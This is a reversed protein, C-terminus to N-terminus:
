ASAKTWQTPTIEPELFRSSELDNYAPFQRLKYLGANTNAFDADSYFFFLTTIIELWEAGGNM